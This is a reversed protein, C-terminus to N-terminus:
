AIRQQGWRIHFRGEKDKERYMLLSLLDYDINFKKYIADLNVDQGKMFLNIKEKALIMQMQNSEISGAYTLFYIDKYETSVYRVFRMYFQSMGSNNYHLEPIIVKNVFEFNVSSPLSQQTCLLIGCKSDKLAKRLARRKAFSCEGTIEFLPRAPLYEKIAKKYSELVSKHRVGIAVLEDPWNAVMEICAMVKVPTDGKYEVLTDPAASIKLLLMIQQILKMMSDKRANDLSAFYNDRMENFHDIAKQYVAMEEPSFKVPVQHLRKIEKGVVEEFTRTIVTKELLGNLADANYIDQTRQGIGFVTIKEPLHSSSFLAYGKKYAPIPQGYYPNEESVISESDGTNSHKYLRPSWSVMNISNNYLLELQPAFELINNRTSTGTTLLKARCRRFCSLVAKCRQSGPNSIEDSEDLILQVKYGLLKVKRAIRKRFSSVKNLTILVFDGQRIKELDSISEVSVYPLGYNKLVISWNNRISIASSIVWTSHIHQCSMRYLGTAIGALTKGSGQEWQLLAYRKQLVLNIDHRQIPNLRIEEENESDWLKLGSLFAGISEDEKMESFVQSQCEYEIRKRRLLKEFGPFRNPSNDLVAQYIAVPQSQSLKLQKRAKASYGKYLFDNKQKVLAITDHEAPSAQKRLARKLYSLVKAETLRVLCWKEYAMDEPQSQTYFTHLYEFCKAYQKRTAPHAKIQYLLKQAQYAFDDKAPHSRALELLIRSSNEELHSKALLLMQDYIHDATKKVDFGAPVSFSIETQYPHPEWGESSSRKQWFQLKTPYQKVGMHSFANEPLGVQGLFSYLKEMEQINKKDTFSDSLFSCPVILAMIGLPKLLEAAKRCYYMQSSIKNGGDVHWALNFPPNGVVYDFRVEPQYTRVDKWEISAAPYLFRAVKYAKIDLECGYLNGETPMDNFFNGMGCTLDAVLDSDSIRLSSAVLSCLNSPTFFQGNECEKKASSFDHYNKFDSRNLGHLGGDGTYANFIDEPAIGSESATGSDILYLIKENIEKRSDQPVSEGYFRYKLLIWRREDICQAWINRLLNERQRKM